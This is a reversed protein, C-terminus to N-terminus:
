IMDSEEFAELLKGDKKFSFSFANQGFFFVWHNTCRGGNTGMIQVRIENKREQSGAM